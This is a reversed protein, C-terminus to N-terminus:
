QRVAELLTPLVPDPQYRGTVRFGARALLTELEAPTRERGGDTLILMALDMMSSVPGPGGGDPLMWESILLTAGSPMAAACNALILGAREDDWDHLINSLLYGDGKAPVASFFDGGALECRGAVGLRDLVATAGALVSPQDFLVGRLQPHGALLAGLLYGHGGGVDVVTSFRGFDYGVAVTATSAASLEVMAANFVDADDPHRELYDFLGGNWVTQPAPRGTRVSDLLGGVVSRQWSSGLMMAGYAQSGPVGPRLTAGLETLAYGGDRVTFVDVETLARLVRNLTRADAGVQAALETVPRAQDGLAEPVGLSTVVSIAQTIWAGMLLRNMQASPPVPPNPGAPPDPAAARAEAPTSTEQDM